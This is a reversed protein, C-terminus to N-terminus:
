RSVESRGEPALKRCELFQDGHLRVLLNMVTAKLAVTVSRFMVMLMLFSAAPV